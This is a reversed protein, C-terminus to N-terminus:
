LPIFVIILTKDHRSTTPVSTPRADSFENTERSQRNVRRSRQAPQFVTAPPGARGPRDASPCVSNAPAREGNPGARLGLSPPM